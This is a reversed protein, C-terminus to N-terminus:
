PYADDPRGLRHGDALLARGGKEVYEQIAAAQAADLQGVDTVVVFSYDILPPDGLPRRASRGATLALATLTGLAASTFM